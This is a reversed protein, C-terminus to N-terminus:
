FDSLDSPQFLHSSPKKQPQSPAKERRQAGEKFGRNLQDKMTPTLPDSKLYPIPVEWRQLVSPAFLYAMREPLERIVDPKLRYEQVERESAVGTKLNWPFNTALQETLKVTRKTGVMKSFADRAEPNQQRFIVKTSSNNVVQDHVVSSVTKLDSLEQHAVVIGIGSGRATGLLGSFEPTALQAFEDVLITFPDPDKGESMVDGSVARMESLLMKGVKQSLAGYKQANLSVWVFHSEKGIRSFDFSQPKSFIEGIESDVLLELQTRIGQFNKKGEWTGLEAKLESLAQIMRLPGEQEEVKRILREVEQPHSVAQLVEMLRPEGLGQDRLFVLGKLIKQLASQAKAEYFVQDSHDLGAVLKDRLATAEGQALPNWGFSNEPDKLSLFKLQDFKGQAQAFWAIEQFLKQDGKFDVFLFGRNAQIHHLVLHKLFLTKGVGSQGVVQLHHNLQKSSIQLGSGLPIFFPNKGKSSGVEQEKKWGFAQSLWCFFLLSFILELLAQVELRWFQKQALIVLGIGLFGLVLTGRLPLSVLFRGLASFLGKLKPDQSWSFREPPFFIGVGFVLLGAGYSGWVAGPLYPRWYREWKLPLFGRALKQIWFFLFASFGLLSLVRLEKRPAPDRHAGLLCGGLYLPLTRVGIAVVKLFAIFIQFFSEQWQLQPERPPAM